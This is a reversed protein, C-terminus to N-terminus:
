TVLNMGLSALYKRPPFAKLWTEPIYVKCSLMDTFPGQIWPNNTLYVKARSLVGMKKALATIKPTSYVVPKYRLGLISGSLAAKASRVLLPSLALFTLYFLFAYAGAFGWKASAPWGYYITGPIVSVTVLIVLLARRLRFTLYLYDGFEKLWTLRAM